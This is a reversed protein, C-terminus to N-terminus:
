NGSRRYIAAAEEDAIVTLNSHLRLASAPIDTTIEGTLARALIQAKRSGSALLLIRRAELITGLGMTIAQRPLEPPSFSTKMLEITSDALELIRTRSDLTSGPENFAIHGNEGIGSILLDIGRSRRITEEYSEDPLYVNAPRVNIYNLFVSWLYARFSQAHGPRLGMYEDLLFFKVKSFDLHNKQRHMRILEQYMGKPTNGSPVALVMQPKARIAEAVIRAAEESMEDYDACIHIKV